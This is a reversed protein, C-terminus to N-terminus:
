RIRKRRRRLAELLAEKQSQLHDAWDAAAAYVHVQGEYIWAAIFQSPKGAWTRAEWALAEVSPRLDEPIPMERLEKLFEEPDWRESLAYVMRVGLARALDEIPHARM